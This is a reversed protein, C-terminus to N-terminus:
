LPRFFFGAFRLFCYFCSRLFLYLLASCGPFIRHEAKEMKAPLLKPEVIFFKREASDAWLLAAPM